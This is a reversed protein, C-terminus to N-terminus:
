DWNNRRWCSDVILESMKFIYTRKKTENSYYLPVSIVHRFYTASKCTKISSQDCSKLSPFRYETLKLSLGPSSKAGSSHQGSFMPFPNQPCFSSCDLRPRVWGQFGSLPIVLGSPKSDLTKILTPFPGLEDSLSIRVKDDENWVRSDLTQLVRAFSSSTVSDSEIRIFIHKNCIIFTM